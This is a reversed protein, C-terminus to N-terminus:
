GGLASMNLTPSTDWAGDFHHREPKLAVADQIRAMLQHDTEGSRLATKLDVRDVSGLCLVLAGKSTLRMRNCTDCFHRSRASIVGVEAGTGEIRFYRAPGSGQPEQHLVPVVGGGFGRRVHQFIEEASVYRDLVEQGAQGVPMTEIFRLLLGRRAAFAVMEPIEHDNMGRMVVMNIKVPRMGAELAAEIGELVPALEGGRTIRRFIEPTLTDLSINVRRVGAEHLARAYRALLVGNTTLSLERVGAMGGLERVLAIVNRRVLPEGGTLRFREVGLAAFLRVLRAIEELTLLEQHNPLLPEGFPRCYDCALNCRDTVSVRLYRITRGFSDVLPM